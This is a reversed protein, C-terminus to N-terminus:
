IVVGNRRVTGLLDIGSTSIKIGVRQSSTLNFGIFISGTERYINNNKGIVYVGTCGSILNDRGFITSATDNIILNNKGIIIPSVSDVLKNSDGFTNSNSVAFSKNHSGFFSNHVSLTDRDYGSYPAGYVVKGNVISLGFVDGLLGPHTVNDVGFYLNEEAGSIDNFTGYIINSASAQSKNNSGFINEFDSKIFNTNGAVYNVTGQELVNYSGYFNNNYRNTLRNAAGISNNNGVIISKLDKQSLNDRGVCITGNSEISNNFYGISAAHGTCKDSYNYSGISLSNVSSYTYNFNGLITIHSAGSKIENLDGLVTLLNSKLSPTGFYAFPFDSQNANSLIRNSKGLITSNYIGSVYNLEGLVYSGVTAFNLNSYGYAYGYKGVQYENEVGVAGCTVTEILINGEGIAIEGPRSLPRNELSAVVVNDMGIEVRPMSFGTNTFFKDISRNGYRNTGIFVPYTIIEETHFRPISLGTYPYYDKKQLNSSSGDTHGIFIGSSFEDGYDLEKFSNSNNNYIQLYIKGSTIM